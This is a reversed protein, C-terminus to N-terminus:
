RRLVMSSHVWGDAETDGIQLWGGPAEGFVRLEKGRPEVRLIASQPAIRINGPQRMVVRGSVPSSTPAPQRRASVQAV